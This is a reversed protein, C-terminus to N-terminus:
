ADPMDKNPKPMKSKTSDSLRQSMVEQLKAAFSGAPARSTANSQETDIREELQHLLTIESPTVGIVLQEKGVELLVVREKQGVNIAGIIRMNVQNFGTFSGFRKVVWAFAFIILVILVLSMMIKGFYDSPDTPNTSFGMSSTPASAANTASDTVQTTPSATDAAYTSFALGSILLIVGGQKISVLLHSLSDVRVLAHLLNLIPVVSSFPKM